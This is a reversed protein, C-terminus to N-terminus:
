ILLAGAHRLQLCFAGLSAKPIVGIGGARQHGLEGVAFLVDLGHRIRTFADGISKGCEFKGVLHAAVLLQQGLCRRRRLSELALDVIHLEGAPKGALKIVAVRNEGDLGALSAKLRLVPGEHEKLHVHLVTRAATPLHRDVVTGRCLNDADVTGGDGNLALVGKAHQTGLRAHVTQHANRRRVIFLTALSCKRAYLDDRHQGIIDLDLDIGAVDTHIHVM